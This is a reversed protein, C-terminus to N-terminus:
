DNQSLLPCKSCDRVANSYHYVGDRYLYFPFQGAPPYMGKMSKIAKLCADFEYKPSWDSWWVSNDGKKMYKTVYFAARDDCSLVKVHGIPYRVRIGPSSDYVFRSWLKEVLSAIQFYGVGLLIAHFHPRGFKHGFEGCAVYKFKYGLRHYDIYRRLRKFFNQLERKCFDFSDLTRYVVGDDQFSLENCMVRRPLFRDSFTFTCFVSRKECTVREHKVLMALTDVRSKRCYYCHGCPVLLSPLNDSSVVRSSDYRPNPISVPHLCPM